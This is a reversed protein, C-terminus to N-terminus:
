LILDSFQNVVQEWPMSKTRLSFALRKNFGCVQHPLGGNFLYVGPPMIYKKCPPQSTSYANITQNHLYNISKVSDIKSLNWFNALGYGSVVWNIGWMNCNGDDHIGGLFNDKYFRILSTWNLGRWVLWDSKFVSNLPYITYDEDTITSLDLLQKGHDNLREEIPSLNLRYVFESTNLKGDIFKPASNWVIPLDLPQVNRINKLVPSDM